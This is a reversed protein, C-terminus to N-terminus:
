CSGRRTLFRSFGSQDPLRQKLLNRNSFPCRGGFERVPFRYACAASSVRLFFAGTPSSSSVSPPVYAATSPRMAITQESNLVFAFNKGDPGSRPTIIGANRFPCFPQSPARLEEYVGHLGPDPLRPMPLIPADPSKLRALRCRSSM